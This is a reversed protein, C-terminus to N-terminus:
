FNSISSASRHARLARRNIIRLVWVALISYFVTLCWLWAYSDLNEYLSGGNSNIHIFGRVGWSSPILHSVWQWMDPMAYMPWTLGSLFLFIVSTFVVVVFSSERDTVFYNLAQGMFGSSLVFPVAFVMYELPSGIHPFDFIVCIYRLLWMTPVIYFISYAFTRGWITASAPIHQIMWPDRGGNRRRRERSTGGLMCIGLLMSQQLILIVMGPMIFSAFGQEVDGLMNSQENIPMGSLESGLVGLMAARDATIDGIAKLQVDSIASMFARYRILLDMQSYFTATGTEMRGIRKGYDDPIELIGFVKNEAMLRKAAPLDPTYDYIEFAPAAAVDRVLQRSAATRDHDIVAIPLERVVEPNYILSYVVPYMLPLVVFFMIIGPDHVILYWERAFVRAAAMMWNYIAKM